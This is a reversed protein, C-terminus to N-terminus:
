YIEIINGQLNIKAIITNMVIGGFGNKGRFKTTVILYDGHDIYSTEVHQYSDPDNMHKKIYQELERHSGDWVSFQSEVINKHALEQQKKLDIKKQKDEIIKIQDTYYEINEKYDKSIPNIDYLQKYLYQIKNFNNPEIKKINNLEALLLNEKAKNYIEQLDTDKTIIYKAAGDVVGKDDHNTLLTNLQKIIMPKNKTFYEINNKKNKIINEIKIKEQEKEKIEVRKSNDYNTVGLSMVFCILMLVGRTKWSISVNFKNLVYDRALPFLLLGMFIFLLGGIVDTTLLVVGEIM